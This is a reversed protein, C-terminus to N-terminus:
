AAHSAIEPLGLKQRVTQYLQLLSGDNILRADFLPYTDLSGESAHTTTRVVSPRQVFWLHGGLRRVMAAENAYRIDDAVVSHGAELLQRARHEWSMLWVDPHICNRGFETGLTQLIHRGTTKIGPIVASKDQYIYRAAEVPSHGLNSLLLMAMEKVPSAFSVTKFGVSHLYRAITSKGSQPAPSYLGLVRVTM